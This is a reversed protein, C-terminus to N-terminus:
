RAHSEGADHGAALGVVIGSILFYLFADQTTTYMGVKLLATYDRNPSYLTYTVRGPDRAQRPAAPSAPAADTIQISYQIHRLAEGWCMSYAKSTDHLVHGVKFDFASGQTWVLVTRGGEKRPTLMIDLAAAHSPQVAFAWGACWSKWADPQASSPPSVGLPLSLLSTERQRRRQTMSTTLQELLALAQQREHIAAEEPPPSGYYEEPNKNWTGPSRPEAM